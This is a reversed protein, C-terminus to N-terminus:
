KALRDLTTLEEVSEANFTRIGAKIALEIEWECKGVGSFVVKNAAGGAKLWRFLEGYSVIDAGAGQDILLKLVGLTSNAKVAYCVRHPIGELAADFAQYARVLERKSYVWVPTGVEAAIKTLAVGECHLENNKYEFPASM